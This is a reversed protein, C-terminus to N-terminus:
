RFFWHLENGLFFIQAIDRPDLSACTTELRCLKEKTKQITWAWSKQQSSHHWWMKQRACHQFNSVSSVLCRICTERTRRAQPSLNLRGSLKSPKEKSCFVAAFACRQSSFYFRNTYVSDQKVNVGLTILRIVLTFNKFSIQKVLKVGEKGGRLCIKSWVEVRFM